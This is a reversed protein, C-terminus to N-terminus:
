KVRNGTITYVEEGRVIYIKGDIMVKRVEPQTQKEAEPAVPVSTTTPKNMSLYVRGAAAQEMIDSAVIPDSEDIRFYGRMGAMTGEQTTLALRNDAVLVLSGAPVTTPNITPEFILGGGQAPHLDAFCSVTSFTMDESLDTNRQMKILYPKGAELLTVKEFNLVVVPDGSENYTSTTGTYTYAEADKLPHHYENNDQLGTLDVGFPLCITNFMGAQLKRTVTLTHTPHVNPNPDLNVWHRNQMLKIVDDNSADHNNPDVRDNEDINKLVYSAHLEMNSEYVHHVIENATPSGKRWALIFYKQYPVDKLSADYDSHNWKHWSSPTVGAISGSPCSPRKWTVVTPMYDSYKM